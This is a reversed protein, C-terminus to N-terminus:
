LDFDQRRAHTLFDRATRAAGVVDSGALHLLLPLLLVGAGILASWALVAKLGFAVVLGVILMGASSTALSWRGM